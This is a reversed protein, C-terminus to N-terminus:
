VSAGGGLITDVYVFFFITGTYVSVLIQKQTLNFM